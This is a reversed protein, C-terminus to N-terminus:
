TPTRARSRREVLSKARELEDDHLEVESWDPEGELAAPNRVEDADYMAELVLVGEYPRLCAPHLRDRIAITAVGVRGTEELAIFLLRYAHEGGAQPLLYYAQRFAIPDFAEPSAFESVELAHMLEVDLRDLDGPEIPVYRGQEVELARVVERGPDGRVEDVGLPRLDRRDVFRFRGEERSETAAYLRVPVSAPGVSVSGSWLERPAAM